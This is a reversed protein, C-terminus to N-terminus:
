HTRETYSKISEFLCANDVFLLTNLGAKTAPELNVERDDIFLVEPPQCKIKEVIFIYAEPTKKNIGFEKASIIENFIEQLKLKIQPQNQVEDTTFLYLPYQTKLGKYFDLLEENLVFYDWANYEGYKSMLERHLGNLNHHHRADKPFLITESFDSLIAKIM